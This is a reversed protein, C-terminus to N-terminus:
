LIEGLAAFCREALANARLFPIGSDELTSRIIEFARQRVPSGGSEGLRALAADFADYAEHRGQGDIDARLADQPAQRAPTPMFRELVEEFREDKGNEM